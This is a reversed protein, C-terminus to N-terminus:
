LELDEFAIEGPVSVSHSRLYIALAAAAASSASYHVLPGLNLATDPSANSSVGSASAPYSEPPSQVPPPLHLPGSVCRRLLPYATPTNPDLILKKPQQSNISTPSPRKHSNGAGSFGCNACPSHDQQHDLRLVSFDPPETSHPPAELPSQQIVEQKQVLQQDAM